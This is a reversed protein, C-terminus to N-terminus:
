MTDFVRRLNSSTKAIIEDYQDKSMKLDAQIEPKLLVTGLMRYCGIVEEYVNSDYNGNNYAIIIKDINSSLIKETFRREEESSSLLASVGMVSPLYSYYAINIADNFAQKDGLIYDVSANGVVVGACSAVKDMDQAKLHFTFSVTLLALLIFKKTKM